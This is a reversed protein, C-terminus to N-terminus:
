LLWCVLEIMQLIFFATFKSSRVHTRFALCNFKFMGLINSMQCKRM